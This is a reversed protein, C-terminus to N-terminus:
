SKIRKGPSGGDHMQVITVMANFPRSRQSFLTKLEDGQSDIIKDGVYYETEKVTIFTGMCKDIIEAYQSDNM